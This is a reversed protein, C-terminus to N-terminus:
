WSVSIVIQVDDGVPFKGAKYLEHVIDNVRFMFDRRQEFPETSYKDHFEINIDVIINSDNNMEQFAVVEYGKAIPFHERVMNDFEDYDLTVVLKTEAKM